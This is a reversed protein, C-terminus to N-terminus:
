SNKKWIKSFKYKDIGRVTALAPLPHFIKVKPITYRFCLAARRTSGNNADSRHLLNENFVIFQGRKRKIQLVNEKLALPIDKVEFNFKSGIELSHNFHRLHTKPIIQLGGNSEDIDDLAIWVSATIQPTLEWFANDQHWSIESEPSHAKKLFLVSRWINIEKGLIISLYKTIAPDNCLNFVTNSRIHWNHIDIESKALQANMFKIVKEIKSKSLFDDPLIFGQDYWKSLIDSQKQKM